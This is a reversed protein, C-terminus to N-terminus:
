DRRRRRVRRTESIPQVIDENFGQFDGDLEAPKEEIVYPKLHAIQVSTLYLTVGIKAGKTWVVLNGGIRGTSGKGITTGEKLNCEAGQSDFIKIKVDQEDTFKTSSKAEIWMKGAPIKDYDENLQYPRKTILYNSKNKEEILDEIMNIFDDDEDCELVVKYEYVKKDTIYKNLVGKGSIAGFLFEGKPCNNLNLRMKKDEDEEEEEIMKNNNLQM